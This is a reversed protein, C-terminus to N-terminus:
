AVENNRGNWEAQKQTAGLQSAFQHARRPVRATLSNATRVIILSISADGSLAMRQGDGVGPETRSSARRVGGLALRMGHSRWQDLSKAVIITLTRSTGRGIM